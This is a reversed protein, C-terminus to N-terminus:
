FNDLNILNCRVFLRPWTFIFFFFMQQSSFVCEILNGAVTTVQGNYTIFLLLICFKAANVGSWGGLLLALLTGAFFAMDYQFDNVFYQCCYVLAKFFQQNNNIKKPGRTRQVQPSRIVVVYFFYAFFYCLRLCVVALKFSQKGPLAALGNKVLAM